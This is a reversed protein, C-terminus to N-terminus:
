ETAPEPETDEAVFPAASRNLDPRNILNAMVTGIRLWEDYLLFANAGSAMAAERRDISSVMVIPVSSAIARLERLLPIGGIETARHVVIATLVEQRALEFSREAGQCEHIVAAPFKRLLTRVLLFRSDPNDDVVLFNLADPMPIPAATRILVANQPESACDFGTQSPTLFIM